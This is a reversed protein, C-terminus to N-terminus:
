SVPNATSILDICLVSAWDKLLRLRLVNLPYVGSCIPIIEAIYCHMYHGIMKTLSQHETSTWTFKRTHDGRWTVIQLSHCFFFSLEPQVMLEYRDM